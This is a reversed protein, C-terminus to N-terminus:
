THWAARLLHTGGFRHCVFVNGLAQHVFVDVIQSPPFEAHKQHNISAASLKGQIGLIAILDGQASFSPTQHDETMISNAIRISGVRFIVKHKLAPHECRRRLKLNGHKRARLSSLTGLSASAVTM